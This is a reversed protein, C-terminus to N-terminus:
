VNHLPQFHVLIKVLGWILSRCCILHYWYYIWFVLWLLESLLGGKNKSIWFIIDRCWSVLPPSKLTNRTKWSKKAFFYSKQAVLLDGSTMFIDLSLQSCGKCSRFIKSVNTARKLLLRLVQQWRRPRSTWPPGTPNQPFFWKKVKRDSFDNKLM